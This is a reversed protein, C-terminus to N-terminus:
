KENVAQDLQVFFSLHLMLYLAFYCGWILTNNPDLVSSLALCAPLLSSVVGLFCGTVSNAVLHNCGSKSLLRYLYNHLHDDGAQFPSAGRAVRVVIVRVMEVCPYALLSGLFWLSVDGKAYLELSGFAIMASLGYAGFDGLFIRGTGLNFTIFILLAMILMPAFNVNDHAMLISLFSVGVIGLLGNAGDAMNGANVFGTVVLTAALILTLSSDFGFPLWDYVSATMSVADHLFALLSFVLVLALRLAPPVRTVFDDWLGVLAILLVYSMYDPLTKGSSAFWGMQGITSGTVWDNVVVFAIAGLAVAVGGLRSSQLESIGHSAADDIVWSRQCLWVMLAVMALAVAGGLFCSVVAILGVRPRSLGHDTTAIKYIASRM